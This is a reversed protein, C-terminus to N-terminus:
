NLYVIKEKRKNGVMINYRSQGPSNETLPRNYITHLVFNTITEIDASDTQLSILQPVSQNSIMKKFAQCKSRFYFPYTFDCGTLAYFHPLISCVETGLHSFLSTINHYEVKNQTGQRFYITKIISPCAYLLLTFVHTDDSVVCVSGTAVKSAAYVNHFPLKPDAERHNNTLDNIKEIHNGVRELCNNDRNIVVEKNTEFM